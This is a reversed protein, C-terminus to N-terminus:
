RVSFIKKPRFKKANKQKVFDDLDATRKPSRSYFSYVGNMGEEINKFMTFGKMAHQYIKENRFSLYFYITETSIGIM